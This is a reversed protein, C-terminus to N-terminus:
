RRTCRPSRRLRGGRRAAKAVWPSHEYIDALAATFESDSAKNLSDLSVSNMSGARRRRALCCADAREEPTIDTVNGPPMARSRVANIAIMRAHLKIQEPSDLLVGKPATVFGAWVPEDAHCMSCRSTIIEQVARIEAHRCRAWRSAPAPAPCGPSPWCASRRWRGPGGRAKRARTARNFFHRIVPGILLVIAVILWNYRTAFFLPYHNSLMLFVVPLTLYNNHM